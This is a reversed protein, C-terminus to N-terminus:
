KVIKDPKIEVPQDKACEDFFDVPLAKPNFVDDQKFKDPDVDEIPSKQEVDYDVIKVETRRNAQQEEDTCRVGDACKNILRSEGFGKAILRTSDVGHEVIYNVVSESRRESLRQNYEATGRSDTHSAIEVTIPYLKLIVILSDLIPKAEDSLDSKGFKYYISGLKWTYNIKLKELAFYQTAKPTTSQVSKSIFDPKVPLCFSSFGKRLARVIVGQNADPVDFHYKGASDTKSIYVKGDQKNLLFLTVGEIPKLTEQDVVKEDVSFMKIPEKYFFSYLDNNNNLRDSSFYGNIGTSDQTWGYDDAASNIPYSLHTPKLKGALADKLKIKFIDLGGLGPLADTSYFLYGNSTITPFVDDGGTNINIGFSQPADWESKVDKRQAYYLDYGGRGSPDDSSFVLLTGDRNVAPHTVSFLNRDGFHLPKIKFHGRRSFVGEMLRLRNIGTKDAKSYNASFYFHNNKDVSVAGVNYRVKDFGKVLVTNSSTDGKTYLKDLFVNLDKNFVATQTNESGDDKIRTQQTTQYSDLVKIPKVQVKRLPMKWLRDYNKGIGEFVNLKSRDPRDSSFYILSDAIFPAFENYATNADLLGLHWNLSDERMSMMDSKELYTKAKSEYGKVGILWKSAQQYDRTRAFLEAVRLRDLREAGRIGHPYLIHYVRFANGYDRMRWYCDALKSLLADPVEDVNHLYMEYFGAAIPYKFDKYASGAKKLMRKQEKPTLREQQIVGKTQSQLQSLGLLNVFLIILIKITLKAM